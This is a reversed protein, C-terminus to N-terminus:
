PAGKTPPMTCYAKLEQLVIVYGSDSLQAEVKATCAAARFPADGGYAKVAHRIADRVFDRLLVEEQSSRFVYSRNPPSGELPSDPGPLRVGSSDGSYGKQPPVALLTDDLDSAKCKDGHITLLTAQDYQDLDRRTNTGWEAFYEYNGVKIHAYVLFPDTEYKGLERKCVDEIVKPLVDYHANPPNVGILFIPNEQTYGEAALAMLFTCLVSWAAKRYM